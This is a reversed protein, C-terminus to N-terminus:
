CTRAIVEILWGAISDSLGGLVVALGVILDAFNLNTM